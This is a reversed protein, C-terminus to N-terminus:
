LKHSYGMKKKKKKSEIQDTTETKTQQKAQLFIAKKEPNKNSKWISHLIKESDFNQITRRFFANWIPLNQGNKQQLYKLIKPRGNRHNLIAKASRKM